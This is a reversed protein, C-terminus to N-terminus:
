HITIPVENSLSHFTGGGTTCVEFGDFCIVLRITYKGSEPLKINDKWAKGGPSIKSDKGSWSQQYWEKRDVGDKKPMVGLSNYGVEGGTSNAVNFDFWVAQKKGADPNEVDFKSAILGNIGIAPPPPPPPPETPPVATPVVPVATPIVPVATPPVATPEPTDTPLPTETPVPTNTAPVPTDTMVAVQPPPLNVPASTATPIVLTAAPLDTPAAAVADEEQAKGGCAALSMTLLLLIGVTLQIRRKTYDSKFM